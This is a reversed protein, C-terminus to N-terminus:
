PKRRTEGEIHVTFPEGTGKPAIAFSTFVTGAGQARYTLKFAPGPGPESLFAAGVGTDLATVRYHITHGENDLYLAKLAGGEPYITLLDEHRAAPRGGQAPFSTVNRRVLVKGDLEFAFTAEATGQGLEGRGDGTWSGALFRVSAFADPSQALLATCAFTLLASRFMDTGKLPFEVRDASVYIGSM